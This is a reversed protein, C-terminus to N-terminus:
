KAQDRIPNSSPQRNTGVSDQGISDTVGTSELERRIEPIRAARERVLALRELATLDPNTADERLCRRHYVLRSALLTRGAQSCGAGATVRAKRM